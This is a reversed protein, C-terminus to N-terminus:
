VLSQNNNEAMAIDSEYSSQTQLVNGKNPATIRLDSQEDPESPLAKM